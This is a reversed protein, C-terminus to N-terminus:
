ADFVNNYDKIYAAETMNVQTSPVPLVSTASKNGLYYLKTHLPLLQTPANVPMLIMAASLVFMQQTMALPAQISM